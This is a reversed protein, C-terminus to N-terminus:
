SAESWGSPCSPLFDDLSRLRVDAELFAPDERQSPAPVVVVTMGAARAAQLGVISDEFAVCNTPDVGLRRAATLYVAPDPKGRAEETASALVEFHDRIALRRLAAEILRPASSSAVAMRTGREALLDLVYDVGPLAEAQAGVLREVEENLQRDVEAPSPGPWPYREFWHAVVRDSRWGMTTSCMTETLEVGVRAFVSREAKRWLPESDVLLGDLDFVAAEIM